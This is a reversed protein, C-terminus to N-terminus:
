TDTFNHLNTADRKASVNAGNKLRSVRSHKQAIRADPRDEQGYQRLTDLSVSKPGVCAARKRATRGWLLGESKPAYRTDYTPSRIYRAERM